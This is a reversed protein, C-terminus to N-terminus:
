HFKEEYKSMKLFSKFNNVNLIQNIAEKKNKSNLYYSQIIKFGIYYGLDAPREPTAKYYFWRNISSTYLDKRFENWLEQEHQEGYQYLLENATAGTILKCIFDASGEIIARSLVNKSTDKYNQQYHILEHTIIIPVNSVTLTKLIKVFPPNINTFDSSSDASNVEAGIFLGEKVSRGGSSLDGIEVYINPYVTAPYLQKLRVLTKRVLPEFQAIRLTNERISEYYRRYKEVTKVFDDTPGIVITKFVSLGASGKKFYLSDYISVSNQPSLKCSDFAAWFNPIDRTVFQVKNPDTNKTKVNQGYCVVFSFLIFLSTITNKMSIHHYYFWVNSEFRFKIGIFVADGQM